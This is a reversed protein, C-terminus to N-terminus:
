LRTIGPRAVAEAADDRAEELRVSARARTGERVYELDVAAGVDAARLARQLEAVREIAQGNASVIVDGARLGAAAAPSNPAVEAVVAGRIADIGARGLGVAEAHRM